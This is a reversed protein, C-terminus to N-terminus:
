HSLPHQKLILARIKLPMRSEKCHDSVFSL